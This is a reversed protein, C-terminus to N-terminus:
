LVRHHHAAGGLGVRRGAEGAAVALVNRRRIGDASAGDGLRLAVGHRVRKRTAIGRWLVKKLVELM